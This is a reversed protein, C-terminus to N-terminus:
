VGLHAVMLESFRAAGCGLDIVPSMEARDINVSLLDRWLRRTEPAFARAEDYL